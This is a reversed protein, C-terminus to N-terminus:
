KKCAKRKKKVEILRIPAKKVTNLDRRITPTLKPAQTQGSLVAIFLIPDMGETYELRLVRQVAPIQGLGADVMRRKMDDFSSCVIMQKTKPHTFNFALRTPTTIGFQPPLSALMANGKKTPSRTKEKKIL